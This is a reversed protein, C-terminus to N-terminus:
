AAVGKLVAFNIVPQETTTGGTTYATIEFSGAAVATVLLIYDDTGSQQSLIVTDTAAVTSNTVTFSTPVVSGLASVLTIAGTVKNLTVGTTRGTGQEVAGGAGTGYGIGGTASTSAISGSTTVTACDFVVSGLGDGSSVTWAASSQNVSTTWSRTGSKEQFLGNANLYLTGGVSLGTTTLRWGEAGNVSAAITNAAPFWFGTNLDGTRAISPTTIAGAAFSAIDSAALTTFAGAAPTTAGIPTNIGSADIDIVKVGLIALGLNGAGIRYIGSGPEERYAVGPASVLGDEVEVIYVETAM